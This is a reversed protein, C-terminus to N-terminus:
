VKDSFGSKVGGNDDLTILNHFKIEINFVEPKLEVDMTEIHYIIVDLQNANLNQAILTAVSQAYGYKDVLFDARQDEDPLAMLLDRNIDVEMEIAIADGARLSLIDIDNNDKDQVIMESTHFSGKVEQRSREEYAYQAFNDLAAQDQISYMNFEDYDGSQENATVTTGGDSKKGVAARRQKLREDGPPPWHAEIVRGTNHDFSKLLIGKTAMECDASEEFTHINHGYLMRAATKATYHETTTTVVCTDKEIYTILGLCEVCWRWVDWSSAGRKPTPKGVRGFRSPALKGLPTSGLEEPIFKLQDKLAEVSSLIKGNKPDKWGTNDCIRTWITKLSDTWEPMGATRLPKNHIFLTTHDHCKLEVVWGSESLRRHATVVMGTFRLHKDPDPEEGDQNADWLYMSVRANKIIRPDIGSMAWDITIDLEDAIHHNNKRWRLEIPIIEITVGETRSGGKLTNIQVRARPKYTM